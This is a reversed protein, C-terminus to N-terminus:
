QFKITKMKVSTKIKGKSQNGALRQFFLFDRRLPAMSDLQGARLPVTATFAYMPVNGTAKIREWCM